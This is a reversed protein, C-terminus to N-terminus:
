PSAPEPPPQVGAGSLKRSEEAVWDGHGARDLHEQLIALTKPSPDVTLMETIIQRTRVADGAGALVEAENAEFNVIFATQNIQLRPSTPHFRRYGALERRYQDYPKAALADAYRRAEIFQPYLLRRLQIRSVSQPPLGDFYALSAANEGLGRNLVVFVYVSSRDDPNSKLREEARARRDRLAQLAPPYQKGLSAINPILMAARGGGMRSGPQMDEDYCWLYEALAEAPRGERALQLGHLYRERWEDPTGTPAVAVNVAVPSAALAAGPALLGLLNFKQASMYTGLNISASIFKYPVSLTLVGQAHGATMVAVAPGAAAFAAKLSAIQAKVDEDNLDLKAAVAFQEVLKSGNLTVRGYEGPADSVPIADALTIGARLAPLQRKLTAASDAVVMNGDIVGIYETVSSFPVGGMSSSVTLCDFSTDAVTLANEAYASHSEVPAMGAGPGGSLRLLKALPNNLTQSQRFYAQAEERGIHGSAVYFFRPKLQERGNAEVVALNFTGAGGGDSAAMFEEYSTKLKRLRESMPPYDVAILSDFVSDAFNSLAKPNNRSVFTGLADASIYGAVAPVPGAGYSLLIGAPTDPRFQVFYSLRIGADEFSLAIGADHIQGLMAALVHLYDAAAKRKEPALSAAKAALGPSVKDRILAFLEPSARGWFRLDEAQPKELYAIVADPSKLKAIDAGARAFLIWDGHRQIVLGSQGLLTWLKGGEKLKAFGILVASRNKFEAGSPSLIAVGINSGAAVESFEPYGYPALQTLITRLMATEPVGAMLKELDQNVLKPHKLSIIAQVGDVETLQATFPEPGPIAALAAPKIGATQFLLATVIVAIRPRCPIRM